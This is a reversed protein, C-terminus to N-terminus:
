RASAEAELKWLRVPQEGYAKPDDPSSATALLRSDPSFGVATVQGPHDYTRLLHWPHTSYLYARRDYGGTALYNGDPSLMMCTIGGRNARLHYVSHWAEMQQQQEYLAKFRPSRWPGIGTARMFQQYDKPAKFPSPGQQLHYRAVPTTKDFVSVWEGTATVLWPSNPCFLPLMGPLEARQKGTRIDFWRRGYIVSTQDDPVLALREVFGKTKLCPRIQGTRTNWLKGQDGILLDLSRPLFVFYDFEKKNHRSFRLRWKTTDWIRLTKDESGTALLTGDPSFAVAYVVAGFGPLAKRKKGTTIDWLMVGDCDATALIKGDPSFALTTPALVRRGPFVRWPKSAPPPSAKATGPGMLSDAPSWCLLLSFLIWLFSMM